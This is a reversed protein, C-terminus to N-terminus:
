HRKNLRQWFPLQSNSYKERAKALLAEEKQKWWGKDGPKLPNEEWDHRHPKAFRWAYLVADCLHDAFRPDIVWKGNETKTTDWQLRIAEDIYAENEMRAIKMAGTRLDANLLDIYALKDTKKAAEVPIGWKAKWEEAYGKGLGGTDVVIKSFPYKQRLKEVHAAAVSPILKPRKYSEVVWVEGREPDYALVAFATPDNFGVDIGLIYTWDGSEAPFKDYVNRARDIHYVLSDSDRVWQGMYERRYSPADLTLGLQRRQNELWQEVDPLHPNDLLTWHHVDWGLDTNNTLDFFPGSCSANPTGTVLIYGNYDLTAPALVEGLMYQLEEGFGQAEDVCAAPYKMGRLKDIERMSGAGRLLIRSKNPLVVDGTNEKFSLGLKFKDNIVQLAPWLINKASARSMTVYLPFSKPHRFGAELLQFAISFSKGARRSCVAAKRRKTSAAFALQPGFLIEGPRLTKKAEARKALEELIRKAEKDDM